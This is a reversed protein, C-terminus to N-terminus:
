DQACLRDEKGEIWKGANWRSAQMGDVQRCEVNTRKDTKRVKGKRGSAFPRAKRHGASPAM